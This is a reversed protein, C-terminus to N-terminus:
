GRPEAPSFWDDTVMALIGAALMAAFEIGLAIPGRRDIWEALRRSSTAEAAAAPGSLIWPSILYVLITLVFLTSAAILALFFPNSLLQSRRPPSDPM